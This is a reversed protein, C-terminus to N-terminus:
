AREARELRRRMGPRSEALQARATEEHVLSVVSILRERRNRAILTWMSRTVADFRNGLGVLFALHVIGWVLFAPLGALRVRGIQAVAHARGVIAMSGKDKYRFPRPASKAALRRAVVGAVYSAEQIAPQAVAPVGPLSVMDGIAFVEPRGPM